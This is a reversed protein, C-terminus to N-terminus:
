PRLNEDFFRKITAYAHRGDHQRVLGHKAGPYVMVDFPKGLDQLKRFLKTSHLFLVNDDAMGHMVLLQGKLNKAYPLVSSAAFGEANNQPRGLYRETYHTDYLNWDTVPAGAVGARFVEPAKFLLMLTMYGGYSWGWVGLRAPDVFAQSGLWRAGLVQDAVEIEGLKGHIPAQFATGRFGSGRNDLQFVVYGARTLIQTFSGGTWNDVVRQVGPGGYVDVIAPYRKAPDFHLPKFLRYYLTQGDAARLTGIEPLSNDALYPADPHQADLRNEFVQALSKGNAAHLSVQPPQTSSTFNDVYVSADSSMSIGHLGDEQSIRDVKRPDRTDLSTSYFQRETSNKETATFYVLRSKEDIGKIARPRFDDVNWAGATLQRILHGDYGYLYLHRYGDRSSAWIFERSHTLFTLESHLEIWAKSTETLVVRSRGTDIDAFLLDLRRQDRSERQIALTKGDPLWNVRALYVDTEPGLDVWTVAGSQVDAVGLRVLVNPGGAAPYRQAFTAVNDAAIEFRETVKVPTEDVRAFAIHRDDPAWWYGTSRDMEEQAVFEAMGNKIAGGGDSTLAKGESKATDFVHLNQDRVFAVYGGAPSIVADSAASMSHMIETVADNAPRTLDCYYLNGGLPFLLAHGSPAFSYELIGSLAATRQRERRSLEENSLKEAAPALTKSDVLIRARGERINYEWLDLRDKDEPKGQLYTVRTGDPSMKLGVITPGALAPADFLRDITLEAAHPASAVACAVLAPALYRGSNRSDAMPISGELQRSNDEM